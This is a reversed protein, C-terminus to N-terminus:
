RHAGPGVQGTSFQAAGESFYRQRNAEVTAKIPQLTGQRYRFSSCRSNYDAVMANFSDISWQYQRYVMTLAGELRINQVECYRIERPSLLNNTGVAPEVEETSPPSNQQHQDGYYALGIIGGIVAAWILPTKWKALFSPRAAKALIRPSDDEDDAESDRAGAGQQRLAPKPYTHVKRRQPAIDSVDSVMGSFGSFGRGQKENSM